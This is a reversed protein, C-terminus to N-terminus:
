EEETNTYDEWSAYLMPLGIGLGIGLNQNGFFFGLVSFLSLGGWIVIALHWQYERDQAKM